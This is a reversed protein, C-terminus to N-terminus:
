KVEELKKEYYANNVNSIMGLVEDYEENILVYQEIVLKFFRFNINKLYALFPILDQEKLRLLLDPTYKGRM